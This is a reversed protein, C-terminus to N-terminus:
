EKFKKKKHLNPNYAEYNVLRIFPLYNLIKQM